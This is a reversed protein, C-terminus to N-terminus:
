GSVQDARPLPLEDELLLNVERPRHPLLDVLEDQEQQLDGPAAPVDVQLRSPAPSDSTLREFPWVASERLRRAIM